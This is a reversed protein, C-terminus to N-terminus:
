SVAKSYWVARGNARGTADSCAGSNCGIRTMMPIVRNRFSWDIPWLTM